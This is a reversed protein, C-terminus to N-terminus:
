RDDPRARHHMGVYPSYTPELTSALGSARVMLRLWPEDGPRQLTIEMSRKGARCTVASLLVEEIQRQADKNTADSVQAHVVESYPGVWVDLVLGFNFRFPAVGRKELVRTPLDGVVPDTARFDPNDVLPRQGLSILAQDLLQMGLRAAEREQDNIM